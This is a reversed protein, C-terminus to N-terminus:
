EAPVQRRSKSVEAALNSCTIKLEINFACHVSQIVLPLRVRVRVKAFRLTYMM